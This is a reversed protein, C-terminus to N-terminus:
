QARSSSRDGTGAEAGTSPGANGAGAGAGAGGAEGGSSFFRLRDGALKAATTGPFRRTVDTLTARAAPYEKLEFQTYGLKLLADPAKRSNPWQDVVTKFAAEAKPFDRSVYYAEGLWYQANDALDSKPYTSLFQQLNAIADPYKGKKLQDLAQMYASQETGPAIASPPSNSGSTGGGGGAAGGAAGLQTIRRDLDAYFALQQKRLAENQNELEDIRGQLVRLQDQLEQINQAMSLLSQNSIVREIRTTRSDLNNLKDQLVPDEEPTTACGALSLVVLGLSACAILMRM